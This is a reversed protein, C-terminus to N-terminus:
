RGLMDLTKLAMRQKTKIRWLKQGLPMYRNYQSLKPTLPLYNQCRSGQWDEKRLSGLDHWQGCQSRLRGLHELEIMQRFRKSPNPTSEGLGTKGAAMSTQKWPANCIGPDMGSIKTIKQGRKDVYVGTESGVCSM